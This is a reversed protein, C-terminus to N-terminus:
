KVIDVLEVDFILTENPGIDNGQGRSGYALDSPIYLKWKSGTPMLQLAEQWGKIVGNVRFTATDGREVSSDFVTGDLLTGHYSVKVKDTAAPKPGNGEKIIEYQLGSELTTVNEKQSNGNLFAKEKELNQAGIENAEADKKAKTKDFVQRLYADATMETFHSKGYALENFFGKKFLDINLTDFQKKRFDVYREQLAAKSFAKAVMKYDVTDFPSEAMKKKWTLAEFYGLAYSVSDIQSNMEAKGTNPVNNCGAVLFLAVALAAIFYNKKMFTSSLKTYFM